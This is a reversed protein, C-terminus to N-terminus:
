DLVCYGQRKLANFTQLSINYITGDIEVQLPDLGKDVREWDNYLTVSQTAQAAMELAEYTNIDAMDAYRSNDTPVPQKDSPQEDSNPNSNTKKGKKYCFYGFAIFAIIILLTSDKM